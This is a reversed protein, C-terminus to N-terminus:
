TLRMIVFRDKQNSDKLSFINKFGEKEFIEVVEREQDFGIELFIFGDEKLHSAAKQAIKQYIELGTKGGDLALKPEFNKVDADLTLIVDSKIYPPNSIIFDYKNLISEFLDSEYFIINLKLEKANKQAIELAKSSIDSAHMEFDPRFHKIACAIAGSGTCLDLGELNSRDKLLKLAIEVLEETESRPILVEPNVELKLGMFSTFGLIYDVPESVLRRKIYERYTDLELTTLPREFNMYLDMRNMQVVDCLLWEASLRPELINKSQLFNSAKKLVDGLHQMM